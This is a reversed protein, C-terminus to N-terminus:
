ILKTDKPMGRKLISMAKKLNFKRELYYELYKELFYELEKLAKNSVRVREVTALRSRGLFGILALTEKSLSVAGSSQYSCDRCLMGGDPLSFLKLDDKNGCLVCHDLVPSYGLNVLLSMEFYRILLPNYGSQNLFSLVELTTTYLRPIAIGDMLSKDLLEMLYLAYLSRDFDERTNGYFELLKGQTILSMGKGRSFFLSSHCFPQVCARLSSRPKKIGRAVAKMKGEHESFITVLKDSERYDMNKIVIARSRLYM